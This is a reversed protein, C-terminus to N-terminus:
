WLFITTASNKRLVRTLIYLFCATYVSSLVHYAYARV